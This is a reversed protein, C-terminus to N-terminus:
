AAVPRGLELLHAFRPDVWASTQRRVTEARMELLGVGPREMREAVRRMTVDDRGLELCTACYGGCTGAGDQAALWGPGFTRIARLASRSEARSRIVPWGDTAAHGLRLHEPVPGDVALQSCCAVVTGDYTVVPWSALHCPLADSSAPREEEPLLAEARGYRQLFSVHIPCRDALTSRIDDVAAELYPDDAGDGVLHVSVDIGDDLLGALQRLVAARPVEAEHFRDISASVHGVSRLAAHVAPAPHRGAFWMGTLLATTTGCRRATDALARVLGPRLLPEGGTLWMVQPRDHETFSEALRIFPAEAHQEARMTSRTACHACHLPCRRTLSLFVGAGVTARDTSLDLLHV